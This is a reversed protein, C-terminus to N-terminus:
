ECSLAVEHLKLNPVDDSRPDGAAARVLMAIGGADLIKKKNEFLCALNVLVEVAKAAVVVVLSPDQDAEADVAPVRLSGAETGAVTQGAATVLPLLTTADPVIVDGEHRTGAHAASAAAVVLALLPPIAGSEALVRRLTAERALIKLSLLAAITDDAAAAAPYASICAILVKHTGEGGPQAAEARGDGAGKVEPRSKAGRPLGLARATAMAVNVVKGVGVSSFGTSVM